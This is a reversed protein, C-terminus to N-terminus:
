LVVATIVKEGEALNTEIAKAFVAQGYMQRKGISVAFGPHNDATVLSDGKRVPGYVKCPVRGRLAVPLGNTCESNMLYAPNTSIIGAVSTDALELTTTIEADGGFVVVTGPEYSADTVYNEALDAYQASTAKAYVTAFTSGSSGIDGVGTTGNHTISPVTLGAFTPSASTQLNQPESLTVTSGSLTATFGNTGAFTLTGGGVVSGTGSTGALNITTSVAASTLATIRGYADTTIVPIATGSGVTTAGVGITALAIATGSITLNGAGTSTSVVRTGSDYVGVGSVAGSMTVNTGTHNTGSINGTTVNAFSPSATTRIDQPTGITITSTSATATVGNAGAFTLTGGGVVSGTGSTGALNITTSVSSSTLATIRGYADTTIVPIATGSGVTTAGPGIATLNIGGSAITLNGAGTSTSVVRIGGSYVGSTFVGSASGVVNGTVALSTLTGVSTINPQAATQIGGYFSSTVNAAVLNGSLTLATLGLMSAGAFNLTGTATINTVGLTTANLTTTNLANTVTLNGATGGTAQLNTITALPAVVNGYFTGVFGTGAIVNGGVYLGGNPISVAGIGTSGNAATGNLFIWPGSGLSSATTFLTGLGLTTTTIVTGGNAYINGDVSLTGSVNGSVSMYGINAMTSVVNGRFTTAYVDGAIGAGGAVILAGTTTSTSVTTNSLFQSGFQSGAYFGDYVVSNGLTVDSTTIKYVFNNSAAQHGFFAYSNAGGDAFKGFIGVDQTDGPLLNAHLLLLGADSSATVTNIQVLGQAYINRFYATTSGLDYSTNASPIINDSVITVSNLNLQGNIAVNGATTNGTLTTIGASHIGTNANLNGATINSTFSAITGTANSVFLNSIDATGTSKFHVDIASNHFDVSGDISGTGNLFGSINAFNADVKFFADRITDGTGDNATTGENVDKIPYTWFAM